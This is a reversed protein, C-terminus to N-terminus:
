SFYQIRMIRVVSLLSVDAGVCPMIVRQLDLLVAAGGVVEVDYYREWGSLVRTTAGRIVQFSTIPPQPGLNDEIPGHFVVEYPINKGDGHRANSAKPAMNHVSRLMVSHQGLTRRIEVFSQNTERRMELFNQAMERRMDKMQVLLEQSSPIANGHRQQGLTHQVDFCYVKADEVQIAGPQNRQVTKAATLVCELDEEANKIDQYAM